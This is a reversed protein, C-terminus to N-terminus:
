QIESRISDAVLFVKTRDPRKRGMIHRTCYHAIVLNCTTARPSRPLKSVTTRFTMYDLTESHHHCHSIGLQTPFGM